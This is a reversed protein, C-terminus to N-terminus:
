EEARREGQSCFDEPQMGDTLFYSCVIDEGSYDTTDYEDKEMNAVNFRCESCRVVEVVDATPQNNIFEALDKYVTRVIIEKRRADERAFVFKREEIAERLMPEADIYRAM